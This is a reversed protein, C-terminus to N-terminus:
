AATKEVMTAEDPLVIRWRTAGDKALEAAHLDTFCFLLCFLPLFSTKMARRETASEVLNSLGTTIFLIADM